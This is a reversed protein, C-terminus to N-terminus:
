RLLVLKNVQRFSNHSLNAVQGVTQNSLIGDQGVPAAELSIFYVGSGISRGLDDKGDWKITHVGATKQEFLLTRIKQGVVNYIEIRVNATRPLQFRIVTQENFPNPYNQFLKISKPLPKPEATQVSSFEKHFLNDPSDDWWPPQTQGLDMFSATWEPMKPPKEGMLLKRWAEDTLRDSIPQTFEYYSFIAGRTIRVTGGENVIVFIELPYGVGEELCQDTNSDTHVDAVVAMDDTDSKWPIQPDPFYSVLKQMVKGFCYIDEYEQDTLPLNELEKIAVRKLFLLLSEFLDLKDKFEGFLLNRSQLGDRTYQALSALRAYLHPNPEVYNRPPGPPVCCPT